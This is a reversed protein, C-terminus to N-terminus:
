SIIHKDFLILPSLSVHVSVLCFVLDIVTANDM